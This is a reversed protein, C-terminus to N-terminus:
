HQDIAFPWIAAPRAEAEIQLSMGPPLVMSEVSSLINKRISKVDDPEVEISVVVARSLNFHRILSPQTALEIDALEGLPVAMVGRESNIPIRTLRLDVKSSSRLVLPLTEDDFQVTSFEFGDGSFRLADMLETTTIGYRALLEHRPKINIEPKAQNGETHIARVGQVALLTQRAQDSVASLASADQGLLWLSLMMSDSALAPFPALQRGDPPIAENWSIVVLPDEDVRTLVRMADSASALRSIFELNERDPARIQLSPLQRILQGQQEPPWSAQMDFFLKEVADKASTKGFISVVQVPEDNLFVHNRSKLSVTAVDAVSIPVANVTSIVTDELEKISRPTGVSRILVSSGGAFVSSSPIQPSTLAAVIQQHTVGTAVLTDEDLSIVLEKEGGTIDVLFVGPITSASDRLARAQRTDPVAVAILLQQEPQVIHLLPEEAEIPLSAQLVLSRLTYPDSDPALKATVISMGETSVSTIEEVTPDPSISHEIPVTVGHEVEAPSAGPFHTVIKVIPAPPAAGACALLVGLLVLACTHRLLSM